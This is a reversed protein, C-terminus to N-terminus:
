FLTAYEDAKFGVQIHKDKAHSTSVVLVPRKILTPHELLIDAANASLATEKEAESLQKWTTSRKNVLVDNGVSDLWEQVLARELGDKRFDHFNFDVKSKELWARAKKVTDCNPIGYLTTM